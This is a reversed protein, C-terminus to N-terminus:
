IEAGHTESELRVRRGEGVVAVPLWRDLVCLGTIAEDRGLGAGQGAGM